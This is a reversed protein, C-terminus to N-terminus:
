GIQDLTTDEAMDGKAIKRLIHGFSTWIRDVQRKDIAGERHTMSISLVGTACSVANFQLGVGVSSGPQAWCVDKIADDDEWGTKGMRGLNSVEFSGGKWPKASEMGEVLWKEWGTRREVIRGTTPDKVSADGCPLFSLMGMGQKAQEISRRDVLHAGYARCESWFQATSLSALSVPPPSASVSAVYNGTSTPHGLSPNRLSIPTQSKISVLETSPSGDRDDLVLLTRAIAVFAATVFVPQLTKVGFRKSEVGLNRALDPEVFLLNLATRRTRPSVVPPNPWFSPSPAPRLFAPLKPAVLESFVTKVLAFTSPRVDVTAELTPPVAGVSEDQGSRTSDTTESDISLKVLDLLEVFLNRTASGDALVHHVGLTIRHWETGRNADEPYTWVRWLPARSIDFANIAGLGALLVRESSEVLGVNAVAVVQRPDVQGNLSFKPCPELPNPVSANLLPHRDLLAAVCSELTAPDIRSRSRVRATFVVAPAQHVNHRALSYREYPGLPRERPM